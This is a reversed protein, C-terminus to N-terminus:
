AAVPVEARAAVAEVEVAIRVEDGVAVGGAELFQNWTLGFEKRSLKAGVALAARQNGWPDKVPATFEGTLTVPKTVGRITLDGAITVDAGRQDIRTSRFTLKPHQAADLFDASRLHEDRQAVHTDISAADLTMEVSALIGDPSTEGSGDLTTFRGKVTSIMLHKVAFEAASHTTDLTWKM